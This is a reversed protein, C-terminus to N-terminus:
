NTMSVDASIRLINYIDCSWVVSSSRGEVILHVTQSILGVANQFTCKYIGGDSEQLNSILVEALLVDSGSNILKVRSTQRIIKDDKTWTVKPKPSGAARCNIQM